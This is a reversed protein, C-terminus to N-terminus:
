GYKWKYGLAFKQKNLCVQTINSSNNVNKGLFQCAKWTSDFINLINNNSDMQIVKKANKRLVVKKPKNFNTNQIVLKPDEEIYSLWRFNKYSQRRKKLCRTIGERKINLAEAAEPPNNWFKIFNGFMDYQYVPSSRKRLSTKLKNITNKSKKYGLVGEGGITSNVLHNGLNTYYQIYYQELEASKNWFCSDIQIIKPTIGKSLLSNIWNIRHNKIKSTKAVRIHQKLRYELKQITKGVYRIQYNEDTLVYILTKQKFNKPKKSM